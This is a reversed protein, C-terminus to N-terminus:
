TQYRELRLQFLSVRYDIQIEFLVFIYTGQHVHFLSYRVVTAIELTCVRKLVSLQWTLVDRSIDENM